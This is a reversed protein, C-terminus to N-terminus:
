LFFPVYPIMLEWTQSDIDFSKAACYPASLHLFDASISPRTSHKNAMVEHNCQYHLPKVKINDLVKSFINARLM